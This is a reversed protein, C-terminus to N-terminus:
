CHVALVPCNGLLVVRYTTSGFVASDVTNRGHVATVVLDAHKEQALRSIEAYAKGSRVIELQREIREKEALPAEEMDWELDSERVKLATFQAYEYPYIEHEIGPVGKLENM